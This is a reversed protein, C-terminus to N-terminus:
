REEAARMLDVVAFALLREGAAALQESTVNRNALLGAACTQAAQQMDEPSDLLHRLGEGARRALERWSSPFRALLAEAWAEPWGEIAADSLWALALVRGLDKNSRRIRTGEILDPRIRPHELLNALAMMEPRAARVGFRTERAGHTAISTFQFSPLGYHEGNSLVFRMWRRGASADMESEPETLLELFWADTNPPHLRLAPLNEVPTQSTGPASFKGTRKPTWGTGLLGDAIMRGTDGASARPTLVSDIDKTRVALAAEDAFWYAAALSGIIVIHRRLEAPIASVVQALVVDPNVAEDAM